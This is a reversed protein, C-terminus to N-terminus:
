KLDLRVEINGADMTKSIQWIHQSVKNRTNKIASVLLADQFPADDEKSQCLGGRWCGTKAISGADVITRNSFIAM